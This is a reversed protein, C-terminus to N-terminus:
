YSNFDKINSFLTRFQFILWCTKFKIEGYFLNEYEFFYGDSVPYNPQPPRQAYYAPQPGYSPYGSYDPHRTPASPNSAPFGGGQGPPMMMNNNNYQVISTLVVHLLTLKTFEQFAHVVFDYQM